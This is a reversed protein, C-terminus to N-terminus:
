IDDTIRSYHTILILCKMLENTYITAQFHSKSYDGENEVIGYLTKIIENARELTREYESKIPPNLPLIGQVQKKVIRTSENEQKLLFPETKPLDELTFTKYSHHRNNMYEIITKQLINKEFLVVGKRKKNIIMKKDDHNRSLYARISDRLKKPIYCKKCYQDFYVYMFAEM